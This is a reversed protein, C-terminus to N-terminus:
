EFLLKNATRQAADLNKSIRRAEDRAARAEDMRGSQQLAEALLVYGVDSPELRLARTYYDAAQGLDGTQQAILGLGLLALGAKPSLQLAAHYSERAEPYKHLARYASGLNTFARARLQPDDTLRLVQQYQQIADNTRGQQQEVLGLNIHAIPDRPNIQSATRFQALAEEYRGVTVLAEGLNDHAVFNEQTVAVAHTWLSVSDRWYGLQVHAAIALAAVTAMGAAGLYRNSPNQAKAADTVGWVVITFIGLFPLYAYRDAMAQRGVQVLGIVPVMMGLYWFWGVALYRYRRAFLVAVTILLLVLTCFATEWLSISDGRHPYMVALHSPWGAKGLYGTYAVAANKLRVFLSYEAGASIAGGAKQAWLTLVASALSLMLLPIKELVLRSNCRGWDKKTGALNMRQLPWYDLLLLVFPLTIVMPKSMLGLSFLLAVLVYRKIDPKRVYRGYAALALLFFLTCLVNKREAVWAVSEVNVPHVAFIAAVMVSRWTSGTGRQLLLFVLIVNLAHLLASTYHHGAPNMHFLQYDLAHSLWTLPHWNAADHSRFAWSITNWSLGSRVQANEFVYYNDDYNVFDFHAVPNYLLLTLVGLLLCLVLNRKEPSSFLSQDAAAATRTAPGSM